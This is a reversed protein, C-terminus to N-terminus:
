LNLMFAVHWSARGYGRALEKKEYKGREKKMEGEEEQM